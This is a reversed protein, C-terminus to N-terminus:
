EVDSEDDNAENRCEGDSDNGAFTYRIDNLNDDAEMGEDTEDAPQVAVVRAKWLERFKSALARHLAAQEAAYAVIGERLEESATRASGTSGREEWQLAYKELAVLTRRQEDKVVVVEEKYRACRARARLWEGRLASRQILMICCIRLAVCEGDAMGPLDSGDSKDAGLWIWSLQRRGETIVQRRSLPEGDPNETLQVEHLRRVDTHALVRWEKEWDGPGILGLKAERAARYKNAVAIIKVENTELHQRSRMNQRQHRSNREKYALLRHKYHLQIRLRDLSNRLQGDRLRAELNAVGDVCGDLEDTELQHPFFLPQLEPQDGPDACVAARSRTAPGATSTSSPHPATSDTIVIRRSPKSTRSSWFRPDSLSKAVLQPVCPMYIAQVERITQLRRRINARKEIIDLAMTSAGVPAVPYTQHFRRRRM